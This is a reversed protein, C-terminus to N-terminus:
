LHVFGLLMIKVKLVWHEWDCHMSCLELHCPVDVIGGEGVVDTNEIFLLCFGDKASGYCKIYEFSKM